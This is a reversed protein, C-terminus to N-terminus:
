EFGTHEGKGAWVLIKLVALAAEAEELTQAAPEREIVGALDGRVRRGDFSLPPDLHPDYAYPTAKPERVEDTLALGAPPNNGRRAADHRFDEIGPTEFRRNRRRPM